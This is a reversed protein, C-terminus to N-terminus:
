IEGSEKLYVRKLADLAARRQAMAISPGAGEGLMEGGGDGYVGVVYVSSNSCRGSEQHLRFELEAALDGSRIRHISTLHPIPYAIIPAPLLSTSAFLSNSFYRSQLWSNACPRGQQQELLGVLALLRDTAKTSSQDKSLKNRAAAEFSELGLLRGFQRLNSQAGFFKENFGDFCSTLEKLRPFRTQLYADAAAILVMRGHSILESPPSELIEMLQSENVQASQLLSPFSRQFFTWQSPNLRASPATSTSFVRRLMEVGPTM